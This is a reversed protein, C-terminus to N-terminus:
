APPGPYGRINPGYTRSRASGSTSPVNLAHFEVKDGDVGGERGEGGSGSGAEVDAVGPDDLHVAAEPDEGGDPVPHDHGQLGGEVGEILGLRDLLPDVAHPGDVEDVPDLVVPNKSVECPAVDVLRPRRNSDLGPFGRGVSGCSWAKCYVGVESVKSGHVVGGGARVVAGDVGDLDDAEVAKEEVAVVDDGISPFTQGECQHGAEVRIGLRALDFVLDQAPPGDVEGKPDGVIPGTDVGLHFGEPAAVDVPRPIGPFGRDGSRYIGAKCYVGVESVKSGHVVGGGVVDGGGGSRGVGDQLVGGPVAEDLQGVAVDDRAVDGPQGGPLIRPHPVDLELAAVAALLVRKEGHEAVALVALFAGAGVDVVLVVLAAAVGLVLAVINM